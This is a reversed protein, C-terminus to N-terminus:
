CSGQRDSQAARAEAQPDGQPGKQLHPNKREHQAEESAEKGGVSKMGLAACWIMGITRVLQEQAYPNLKSSPRRQRCDDCLHRDDCTTAAARAQSVAREAARYEPTSDFFAQKERDLLAEAEKLKEDFAEQMKYRQVDEWNKVKAAVETDVIVEMAEAVEDRSIKNSELKKSLPLVKDRISM